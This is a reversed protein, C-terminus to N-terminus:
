RALGSQLILLEERGCRSPASDAPIERELLRFGHRQFMFVIADAVV